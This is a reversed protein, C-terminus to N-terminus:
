KDHKLSDLYDLQQDESFIKQFEEDETLDIIAQQINKPLVNPNMFDRRKEINILADIFFAM